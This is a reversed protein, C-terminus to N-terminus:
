DHMALYGVCLITMFYLLALKLKENTKGETAEVAAPVLEMVVILMMTGASTAFGFSLFDKYYGFYNYSIVAALPQPANALVAYICSQIVSLGQHRLCLSIALGEPINHAALSWVVLWDLQTYNESKASVGVSIGEAISHLSMSVILTVAKTANNGSLNGIQLNPISEIYNGVVHIFSAGIGAWLFLKLLNQDIEYAELMLGFCCGTMMGAAFILSLARFGASLDDYILLPLGGLGSTVAAGVARTFLEGSAGTFFNEMM